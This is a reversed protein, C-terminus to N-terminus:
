PLLYTWSNSLHLLPLTMIRAVVLPSRTKSIEPPATQARQPLLTSAPKQPLPETHARPLSVKPVFLAANPHLPTFTGLPLASTSAPPLPNSPTIPKSVTPVPHTQTNHDRNHKPLSVPPTKPSDDLRYPIHCAGGVSHLEEYLLRFRHLEDASGGCKKFEELAVSLDYNPNSFFDDLDMEPESGLGFENDSFTEAKVKQKKKFHKRKLQRM